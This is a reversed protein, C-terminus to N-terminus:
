GRRQRGRKWSAPAWISKSMYESEMNRKLISMMLCLFVLFPSLVGCRSKLLASIFPKEKITLSPISFPTILFFFFTPHVECDPELYFHLRCFGFPFVPQWKLADQLVSCACFGNEKCISLSSIIRAFLCDGLRPKLCRTLTCINSHLWELNQKVQM